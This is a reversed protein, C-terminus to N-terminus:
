QIFCFFNNVSIPLRQRIKINAVIGKMAAQGAGAGGGGGGASSSSAGGGGGGLGISSV